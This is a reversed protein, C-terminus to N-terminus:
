REDQALILSKTTIFFNEKDSLLYMETGFTKSLKVLKGLENPISLFM